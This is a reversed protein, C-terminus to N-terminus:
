WGLSVWFVFISRAMRLVYHLHRSAFRPSRRLAANFLPCAPCRTCYESASLVLSPCRIWRCVSGVVPASNVSPRSSRRVTYLPPPPLRFSAIPPTGLEGVSMVLPPCHIISTASHLVLCDTFRRTLCRITRVVPATNVPLRLPCDPALNVPPWASRCACHEGVSMIPLTAGYEGVFLGSRRAGYQCTFRLRGWWLAFGFCRSFLASVVRRFCGASRSGSFLFAGFPESRM